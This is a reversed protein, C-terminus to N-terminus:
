SVYREIAGGVAPNGRGFRKRRQGGLEAALIESQAEVEVVVRFSRFDLLATKLGRDETTLLNLTESLSARRERFWLSITSVVSSQRSIVAKVVSQMKKAAGHPLRGQM